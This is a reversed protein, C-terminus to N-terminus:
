FTLKSIGSCIYAEFNGAKEIIQKLQDASILQANYHIKASEDLLSVVISYVGKASSVQGEITRTCSNCHMGHIGILVEANAASDPANASSTDPPHFVSADFGIDSVAAAVDAATIVRGTLSVYAMNDALSVTVSGIGPLSSICSQVSKVCSDCTMGGISIMVDEAIASSEACEYCGANNNSMHMGDLVDAEAEYGMDSIEKAIALINTIASNFKVTALKDLLSVTIDIVGNLQSIVDEINKTCSGCTMGEIHVTGTMVSNLSEPKSSDDQKIPLIVDDHSSFRTKAIFGCNNIADCIQQISLSSLDFVVLACNDSLSVNSAKIGEVASLCAEINRVCSICTMGDIDITAIQCGNM